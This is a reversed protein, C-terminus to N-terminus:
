MEFQRVQRNHKHHLLGHKKKIKLFDDTREGKPFQLDLGVEVLELQEALEMVEGAQEHHGEAQGLLEEAQGRNHM